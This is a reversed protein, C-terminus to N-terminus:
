THQLQKQIYNLITLGAPEKTTLIPEKKQKCTQEILDPLEKKDNVKYGYGNKEIFLANAEEQGPISNIALIPKNLVICETTTLGGPKSIIVDASQMYKHINNTWGIASFKSQTALTELKKLKKELAKNAGAIATIHYTNHTNLLFRVIDDTHTLGQGGSMILINKITPEKKPHSQKRTADYFIPDIPIGSVIIEKEKSTARQLETKIEETAVFYTHEEPVLWLAHAVYDTIVTAIPAQVTKKGLSLYLDTCFFHTSVVYDPNEKQILAAINHVGYKMIKQSIIKYQEIAKPINSGYYLLRWIEPIETILWEYLDVTGKQILPHLHKTIDIHVVELPTNYKEATKEIAEAARIHGSGTALSLLLVKKKENKM